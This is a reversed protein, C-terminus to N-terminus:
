ILKIAEKPRVHSDVDEALDVARLFKMNHMDLMSMDQLPSFEELAKGADFSSDRFLRSIIASRVEPWRMKPLFDNSLNRNVRINKRLLPSQFTVPERERDWENHQRRPSDWGRRPHHPEEVKAAWNDDM